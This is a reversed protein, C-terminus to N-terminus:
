KGIALEFSVQQDFLKEDQCLLYVVVGGFNLGTLFM